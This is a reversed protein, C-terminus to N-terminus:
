VIHLAHCCDQGLTNEMGRAFGAYMNDPVFALATGAFGGGHVRVAGRGGLLKKALALTLAM